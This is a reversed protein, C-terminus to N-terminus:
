LPMPRRSPPLPLSPPPPGPPDPLAANPPEAPIVRRNVPSIASSADQSNGAASTSSTAPSATVICAGRVSRSRAASSSHPPQVSTVPTTPRRVSASAAATVAAQANTSSACDSSANAQTRHTTSAAPTTATAQRTGAPRSRRTATPPTAAATSTPSAAGLAYATVVAAVGVRRLGGAMIAGVVVGAALVVWRVWAFAEDSSTLLVFAWTATAAPVLVVTLRGGLGARRWFAVAGVGVVAAIGPALAVTYPHMTGSMFSFVLGTILTWGGWLLLAARLRDTRPARLTVALGAVLLVLAAPLPWSVELGIEGTFLRTIGAAGGFATNDSGGPGGGSGNGSGGLLRGIGNYGLALELLSNTTSGGIYPRDAAPWPEMLAIYWGAAVVVAALAAGLQLLRTRLRTPGSVLYM